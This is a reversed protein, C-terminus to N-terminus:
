NKKKWQELEKIIKKVELCIEYREQDESWLLFNELLIQYQDDTIIASYGEKEKSTGSFLIAFNQKKKISESVREYILSWVKDKEEFSIDDEQQYSKESSM